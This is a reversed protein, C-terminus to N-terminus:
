RNLRVIAQHGGRLLRHSALLVNIILFCLVFAFADSCPKARTMANSVNSSILAMRIPMITADLESVLILAFKRSSCVANKAALAPISSTRSRNRGLAVGVRAVLM